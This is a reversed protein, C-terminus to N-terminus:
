VGLHHVLFGNRMRPEFWTSKPPLVGNSDAIRMLESIDVPYLSFAVCNHHKGAEDRLKKLGKPGEIYQVREDDRVDEIKLIDQLIEKNLISVDLSEALTTYKELISKKWSLSYWERNLYMTLEHKKQPKRRKKLIQINAKASLKAMLITLTIEDPYRVIRNFDHVDLQSTPFYASLLYDQHENYAEVNGSKQSEYLRSCTALRHHGDAIYAKKVEEKFLDQIKQITKRDTIAWFDHAEEQFHITFTIERERRLKKFYKQIKSVAPYTLLVPKILAQRQLILQMMKQEKDALTHEHKLIKNSYYDELKTCCVMGLHASNSNKYRYLFIADNPVQSFFGNTYFESFQNKVEGFFIDPSTILDLNPQIAHFPHITM